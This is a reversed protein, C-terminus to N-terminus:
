VILLINARSIPIRIAELRWVPTCAAAESRPQRPLAAGGARGSDVAAATPPARLAACAWGRQTTAPRVATLTSEPRSGSNPRRFM